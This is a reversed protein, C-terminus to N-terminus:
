DIRSENAEKSSEERHIRKPWRERSLSETGLAPTALLVTKDVDHPIRSLRWVTGGASLYETVVRKFGVFRGNASLRYYDVNETKM